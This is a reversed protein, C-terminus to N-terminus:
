AISTDCRKRSSSNSPVFAVVLRSQLPDRDPVLCGIDQVSSMHPIMDRIMSAKPCLNLVSEGSIVLNSDYHSLHRAPTWIGKWFFTTSIIHTNRHGM